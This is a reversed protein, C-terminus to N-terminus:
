LLCMRPLNDAPVVGEAAGAVCDEEAFGIAHEGTTPCVNVDAGESWVSIRERGATGKEAVKVVSDLGTLAVGKESM